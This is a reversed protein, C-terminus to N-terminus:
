QRGTLITFRGVDAEYRLHDVDLQNVDSLWKLFDIFSNEDYLCRFMLSFVCM